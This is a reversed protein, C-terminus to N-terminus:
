LPAVTRCRRVASDDSNSYRQSFFATLWLGTLPTLPRFGLAAFAFRRREAVMLRPLQERCGAIFADLLFAVAGDQRGQQIVRQATVLQALQSDPIKPVRPATNRM